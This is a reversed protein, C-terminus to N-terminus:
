YQLCMCKGTKHNAIIPDVVGFYDTVFSVRKLRVAFSNSIFTKGKFDVQALLPASTSVAAHILHPYKLRFWASLSGSYSGGFSVWRFTFSFDFSCTEIFNKNGNQFTSFTLLRFFLCSHCQKNFVLVM